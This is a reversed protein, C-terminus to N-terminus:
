KTIIWARFLGDAEYGDYSIRDIIKLSSETGSIAKEFLSDEFWQEWADIELMGMANKSKDVVIVKGGTKTVRLMERIANEPFISHELSEVAYTVDFTNNDYPINTLTGNQKIINESIEGM